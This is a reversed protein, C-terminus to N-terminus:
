SEVSNHEFIMYHTVCTFLAVLSLFCVDWARRSHQLVSFYFCSNRKLFFLSLPSKKRNSAEWIKDQPFFRTIKHTDELSREVIDCVSIELYWSFTLNKWCWIIKYVHIRYSWAREHTKKPSIKPSVDSVVKILDFSLIFYSFIIHVRVFLLHCM